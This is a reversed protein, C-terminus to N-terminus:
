QRCEHVLQPSPRMTASFPDIQGIRSDATEVCHTGQRFRHQGNGFSEERLSEDTGLTAAMRTAYDPRQTNARPDSLAPNRSRDASSAAQSPLALNLPTRSPALGGTQPPPTQPTAPAAGINFQPEAIRPVEIASRFGEFARALPMAPSPAERQPLRMLKLVSVLAPARTAPPRVARVLLALLLLHLAAVAVLTAIRRRHHQPARGIM